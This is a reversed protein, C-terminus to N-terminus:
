DQSPVVLVPRDALRALDSGVSSSFIREALSLRHSGVVLLPSSARDAEVMLQDVVGGDVLRTTPAAIGCRQAWTEVDARAHRPVRPLVIGGGGVYDPIFVYSPDVDVVLLNRDIDDAIRRAMRGAATSEDDLDTGIVVPGTGVAAASFDTPTVVVPMPLRRLVRRAVTGLRVLGRGHRPAIRGVIMGDCGHALAADCLGDTVSRAVVVEGKGWEAPLEAAALEEALAKEASPRLAEAVSRPGWTLEDIVHVAVIQTPEKTSRLLWKALEVAGNSRGGLDIGILWRM